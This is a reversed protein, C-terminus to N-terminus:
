VSLSSFLDTVGSSKGLRSCSAEEKQTPVEVESRGEETPLEFSDLSESDGGMNEAVGMWVSPQHCTIHHIPCHNRCNANAVFRYVLCINCFRYVYIHHGGKKHDSWSSENRNVLATKDQEQLSTYAVRVCNEVNQFFPSFGKICFPKLGNKKGTRCM